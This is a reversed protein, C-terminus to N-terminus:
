ASAAAAWGGLVHRLGGGDGVGGGGGGGGGDGDGAGAGAGGGLSGLIGDSADGSADGLLAAGLVTGLTSPLGLRGSRLQVELLAVGLAGQWCRPPLARLLELLGEAACTAVGHASRCLGRLVRASLLAREGARDTQARSITECLLQLLQRSALRSLVTPPLTAAHPTLLALLRLGCVRVDRSPHMLLDAYLPAAETLLSHSRVVQQPEDVCALDYLLSVAQRTVRAPMGSLSRGILGILPPVLAEGPVGVLMAKVEDLAARVLEAYPHLELEVCFGQVRERLAAPRIAAVAM